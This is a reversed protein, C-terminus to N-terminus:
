AVKSIYDDGAEGGREQDNGIGGSYSLPFCSNEHVPLVKDAGRSPLCSISNGRAPLSLLLWAHFVASKPGLSYM